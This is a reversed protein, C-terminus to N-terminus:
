HKKVASVTKKAANKLSKPIYPFRKHKKEITVDIRVTESDRSDEFARDLECARDATKPGPVRGPHMRWFESTTSTPSPPVQTIRPTVAPSEPAAAKATIQVSIEPSYEARAAYFNRKRPRAHRYIDIPAEEPEKMFSPSASRPQTTYRVPKPAGEFLDGPVGGMMTPFGEDESSTPTAVATTGRGLSPLENTDAMTNTYGLTPSNTYDVRSTRQRPPTEVRTPTVPQQRYSPQQPQQQHYLTRKSPQRQSPAQMAYSEPFWGEQGAYSGFM